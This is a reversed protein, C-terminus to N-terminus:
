GDLVWDSNGESPVISVTCHKINLSEKAELADHVNKAITHGQFITLNGDIEVVIDVFIRKGFMRTKLGVVSRVGKLALALAKIENATEEQAASDTLQKVSTKLIDFAIKAIFLAVLLVAISEAIDTSLFISAILGILVALSSLSDARSHWAGAKLMDSNIKKAYHMSYWFIAEKIVISVITVSILYVNVNSKSPSIIGRVGQWVLLAVTAFLVVSFLMVMLPEYKEHGYNHKRDSKSTAIFVVIIIFASTLLDAGSHVADSIVSLNDFMIGLVLKAVTLIINAVVVVVAVRLMIKKSSEETILVSKKSM